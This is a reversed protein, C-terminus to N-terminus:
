RTNLIGKFDPVHMCTCAEFRAIEDFKKILEQGNLNKWVNRSRLYLTEPPNVLKRGSCITFTPSDLSDTESTICSPHLYGICGKCKSFAGYYITKNCELCKFKSTLSERTEAIFDDISINPTLLSVEGSFSVESESSSSSSIDSSQTEPLFTKLHSDPRFPFETPTSCRTDTSQRSM